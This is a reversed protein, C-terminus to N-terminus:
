PKIRGKHDPYHQKKLSSQSKKPPQYTYTMNITLITGSSCLSAALPLFNSHHPPHEDNTFIFIFIFIITSPYIWIAIEKRRVM